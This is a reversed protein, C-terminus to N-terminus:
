PSVAHFTQFRFLEVPVRIIVAAPPSLYIALAAPDPLFVEALELIDDRCDVAASRRWPVGLDEL